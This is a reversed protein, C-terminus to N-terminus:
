RVRVGYAASTRQAKRLLARHDASFTPTLCAPVLALCARLESYARREEEPGVRVQRHHSATGRETTRVNGKIRHLGQREDAQVPASRCLAHSQQADAAHRRHEEERARDAALGVVDQRCCSSKQGLRRAAQQQAARPRGANGVARRVSLATQSRPPPPPPRSALQQQSVAGAIVCVRCDDLKLRSISIQIADDFTVCFARRPSPLGFSM